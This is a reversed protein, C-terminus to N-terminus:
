ACPFPAHSLLFPIYHNNHTWGDDDFQALRDFDAQIKQTTM